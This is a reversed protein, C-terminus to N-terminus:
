SSGRGVVGDYINQKTVLVPEAVGLIDTYYIHQIGNIEKEYAVIRGDKSSSPREGGPTNTNALGEVLNTTGKFSSTLSISPTNDLFFTQPNTGQIDVLYYFDGEFNDPLQQIWDLTISENPLLNSGLANGSM